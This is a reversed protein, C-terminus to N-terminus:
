KSQSLAAIKLLALLLLGALWNHAVALEIPLDSSIATIGVSLEATVLILATAGAKRLRGGVSWAM